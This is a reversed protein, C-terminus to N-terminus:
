RRARERVEALRSKSTILKWMLVGVWFPILLPLMLLFLVVVGATQRSQTRVRRDLEDVTVRASGLRRAEDSLPLVRQGDLHELACAAAYFLTPEGGLFDRVHVAQRGTEDGGAQGPRYAYVEVLHKPIRAFALYGHWEYLEGCTARSSDTLNVELGTLQGVSEAVEALLPPPADFTFVQTCIGM